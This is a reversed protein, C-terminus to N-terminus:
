GRNTCSSYNYASGESLGECINLVTFIKHLAVVILYLNMLRGM